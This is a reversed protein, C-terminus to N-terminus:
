LAGYMIKCNFISIRTEAMLSTVSIIRQRVPESFGVQKIIRCFQRVSLGKRVGFSM